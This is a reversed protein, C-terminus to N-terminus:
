KFKKRTWEKDRSKLFSIFSVIAIFLLSLSIYGYNFPYFFLALASSLIILLKFWKRGDVLEDRALWAILYGVPIALVLLIIEIIM